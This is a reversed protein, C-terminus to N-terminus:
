RSPERETDPWEHLSAGFYCQHTEHNGATVSCKVPWERGLYTVVHPDGCVPPNM